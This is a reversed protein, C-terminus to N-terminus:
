TLAFIDGIKETKARDSSIFQKYLCLLIETMVASNLPSEESLQPFPIGREASFINGFIYSPIIQAWMTSKRLGPWM